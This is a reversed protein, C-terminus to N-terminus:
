LLAAHPRASTLTHLAVPMVSPANAATDDHHWTRTAAAPDASLM